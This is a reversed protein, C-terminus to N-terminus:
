KARPKISGLFTKVVPLTKEVLRDVGEANPHMGDKLKLGSETIVGDLFFPYLPVNRAKALEPYASNFTDAYGQGMNPPAMMGFLLVSIGREQLRAIMADLNKRTAVPDLGRLADNAGLELLVGDTGDPITWDLRALGDATTDGSVAGNTITVDVGAQKLAAELKAPYADGAPLEYGAMLSDGFAVLQLPAALAAGAAHFIGMLVLSFVIGAKFRMRDVRVVARDSSLVTGKGLWAMGGIYPQIRHGSGDDREFVRVQRKSMICCAHMHQFVDIQGDPLSLGDADDSRGTGAFRRQQHHEGAQLSQVAARQVDVVGRKMIKGFVPQGGKASAPDADDELGEVQQGVHGRQFVDCHRQLKGIHAVGEGNGLVLKGGDAEAVPQMVIGTLKGAPLLLTHRDGPRQCGIGGDQDGVLRGAIEVALCAALDGVEQKGFLGLPVHGQKEDGM